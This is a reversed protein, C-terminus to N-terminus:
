QIFNEDVPDNKSDFIIIQLNLFVKSIFVDFNILKTSKISTKDDYENSAECLYQLM